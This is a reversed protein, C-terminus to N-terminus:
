FGTQAVHDRSIFLGTAIEHGDCRHGFILCVLVADDANFVGFGLDRGNGFHDLFGLAAGRRRVQVDGPTINQLRFDKCQKALLLAASASFNLKGVGHDM